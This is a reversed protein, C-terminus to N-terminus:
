INKKKERNIESNMSRTSETNWKTLAIVKNQKAKYNMRTKLIENHLQLEKDDSLLHNM